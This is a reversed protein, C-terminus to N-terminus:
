GIHDILTTSSTLQKMLNVSIISIIIIETIQHTFYRSFGYLCCM